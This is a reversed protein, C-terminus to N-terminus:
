IQVSFRVSGLKKHIILWDWVARMGASLRFPEFSTTAVQAKVPGLEPNHILPSADVQGQASVHFLLTPPNLPVDNEAREDLPAAGSQGEQGCSSLVAALVM